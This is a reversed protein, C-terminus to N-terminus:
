GEEAMAVSRDLVAQVTEPTVENAPVHKPWTVVVRSFPKPIVFRDWSRLEWAKEAHVYFSGVWTGTPRGDAGKEGVSQALRAAGPKAVYVPGRPGDATIACCAGEAYTKQMGRLGTAGGRTSSGRIVRFGLRENTRAILEGDFSSSILIAIKMDRFHNACMLLARHWFVFVSPGPLQDGPVVGEETRDEYRLTMGVLRILGAALPPVVALAFRQTWRLKPRGAARKVRSSRTADLRLAEEDPPLESADPQPKSKSFVPVCSTYHRAANGQRRCGWLADPSRGGERISVNEAITSCEIMLRNLPALLFPGGCM